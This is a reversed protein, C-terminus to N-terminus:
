EICVDGGVFVKFGGLECVGLCFVVCLDCLGLEGLEVGFVGGCM